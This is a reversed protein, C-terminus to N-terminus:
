QNRLIIEEGVQNNAWQIYSGVQRYTYETHLSSGTVYTSLIYKSFSHILINPLMNM